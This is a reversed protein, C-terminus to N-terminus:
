RGSRKVRRQSEAMRTAGEEEDLFDFDSDLFAEINPIVNFTSDEIFRPRDSELDLSVLEMPKYRSSYCRMASYIARANRLLKGCISLSHM